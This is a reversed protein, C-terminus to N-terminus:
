RVHGCLFSVINKIYQSVFPNTPLYQASPKFSTQIFRNLDFMTFLVSHKLMKNLDDLINERNFSNFMSNIISLHSGYLIEYANGAVISLGSNLM